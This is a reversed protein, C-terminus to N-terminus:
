DAEEYLERSSEASQFLYVTLIAILPELPHRYRAAVTIFYYAPPLLVFAWAFLGAAPVRNKLSLVLGMIGTISLFCYNLERFYEGWPSGDVPHPVSVWYFYFRKFSILAYHAPHAAIYAKALEGQQRVYAIEGMSKYAMTQPDREVLPLTGPFAFGESGPSVAANLEAGFNSRIPIFTHFARWNRWTWPALFALFVVGALAARLVSAALPRSGVLIWLGCVPLFLLLTANSLAILGWLAGFLLWRPTSSPNQAGAPEGIGRMRLALAFVWSFLMATLSMEWIWHAAYQMAAPYLAWLWASWLAVKRNYCRVAIEYIFLAVAASFASNITMLVWASKATYVGFLKFVGAMLLPYVPPCWATPGSHGVFPDAYGYGTALARAIRGMEWGFQFHDQLVRVHYTHALTIYLVRVAFGAWFIIWPAHLREPAAAPAVRSSYQDTSGTM